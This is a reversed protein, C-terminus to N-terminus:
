ESLLALRMEIVSRPSPPVYGGLQTVQPMLAEMEDCLQRLAAVQEEQTPYFTVYSSGRYPAQEGKLAAQVERISSHLWNLLRHYKVLDRRLLNVSCHSDNVPLKRGPCGPLLVSVSVTHMPSLLTFTSIASCVRSAGAMAEQSGHLSSDNM